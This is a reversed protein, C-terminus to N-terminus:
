FADDIIMVIHEKGTSLSIYRAITVAEKPRHDRAPIAAPQFVCHGICKDRFQTLVHGIVNGLIPICKFVKYLLVIFGYQLSGLMHLRIGKLGLRM